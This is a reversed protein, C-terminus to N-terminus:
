FTRYFIYNYYLIKIYEINKNKNLIILQKKIEIICSFKGILTM